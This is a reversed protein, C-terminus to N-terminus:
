GSTRPAQGPHSPDDQHFDRVGPQSIGDKFGFHEHGRLAGPLTKAEQEFVSIVGHQEQLDRVEDLRVQIDEKRDAAVTVVADIEPPEEAGFVWNDPASSERDGIRGAHKRRAM